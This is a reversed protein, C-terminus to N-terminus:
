LFLRASNRLTRSAAPDYGKRPFRHGAEIFDERWTGPESFGMEGRARGSRLTAGAATLTVETNEEPGKM